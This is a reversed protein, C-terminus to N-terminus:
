NISHDYCHLYLARPKIPKIEAAVKKMNTAGDFCQVQGMSLNFNIWLVTDRLVSGIKITTIVPCSPSWHVRQLPEFQREIWRLCENVQDKNSSDTVEDCELTFQWYIVAASKHLHRLALIQLLENQIQHDTYKQTKQQM